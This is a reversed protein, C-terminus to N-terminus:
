GLAEKGKGGLTLPARVREDKEIQSSPLGPISKPLANHNPGFLYAIHKMDYLMALREREEEDTRNVPEMEKINVVADDGGQVHRLLIIEAATVGIKDVENDLKCDLRVKCSFQRM